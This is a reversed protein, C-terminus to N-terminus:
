RKVRVSERYEDRHCKVDQRRAGVLYIRDRGSFEDTFFRFSRKFAARRPSHLLSLPFPTTLKKEEARSSFRKRASARWDLSRQHDDDTLCKEKFLSM